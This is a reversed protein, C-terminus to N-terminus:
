RTVMFHNGYKEIKGIDVLNNILNIIETEKISSIKNKIDQTTFYGTQELIIKNIKLNEIEEKIDINLTNM